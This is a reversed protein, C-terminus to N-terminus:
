RHGRRVMAIRCSRPRRFVCRTPCTTPGRSPARPARRTAPAVDEVVHEIFVDLFLPWEGTEGVEILWAKAAQYEPYSVDHASIADHIGNLIATVVTAVRETSTVSVGRRALSAKFTESASAGAEAATPTHDTVSM